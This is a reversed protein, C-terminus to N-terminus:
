KNRKYQHKCLQQTIWDMNKSLQMSLTGTKLLIKYDIGSEKLKCSNDEM